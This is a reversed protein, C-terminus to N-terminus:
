AFASAFRSDMHGAFLIHLFNKSKQLAETGPEFIRCIEKARFIFFKKSKM